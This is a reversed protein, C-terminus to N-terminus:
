GDTPPPYVLVGGIWARSLSRDDGPVGEWGPCDEGFIRMPWGEGFVYEGRENPGDQMFHCVAGDHTSCTEDCLGDDADCDDEPDPYIRGCLHVGRHGRPLSCGHSGWYVRCTDSRWGWLHSLADPVLAAPACATM